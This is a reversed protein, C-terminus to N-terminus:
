SFGLKKADKVYNGFYVKAIKIWLIAGLCMLCPEGTSYMVCGSLNFTKLKKCAIRIVEIEAHRSIDFENAVRSYASAVVEGKKVIIAGFPNDQEDVALKAQEVALKM